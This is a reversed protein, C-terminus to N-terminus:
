RAGRLGDDPKLAAIVDLTSNVGVALGVLLCLASSSRKTHHLRNIPHQQRMCAHVSAPRYADDWITSARLGANSKISCSQHGHFNGVVCLTRTRAYAQM